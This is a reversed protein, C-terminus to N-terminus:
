AAGLAPAVSSTANSAVALACTALVLLAALRLALRRAPSPRLPLLAGSAVAAAAVTLGLPASLVALWACALLALLVALATM